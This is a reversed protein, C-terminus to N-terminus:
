TQKNTQYEWEAIWSDSKHHEKQNLIYQKVKNVGSKSVTFARYAGQWKFFGDPDIVHTVLHSTSGKVQKVLDAVSVAPSLRVLIHVHNSTGGVALAECKLM